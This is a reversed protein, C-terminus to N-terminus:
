SAGGKMAWRVLSELVETRAQLTDIKHDVGRRAEEPGDRFATAICTVSQAWEMWAKLEARHTADDAKFQDLQRRLSGLKTAVRGRWTSPELIQPLDDQDGCVWAAWWNWSGIEEKAKVITDPIACEDDDRGLAANLSKMAEDVRDIVDEINGTKPAGIAECLRDRHTWEAAYARTLLAEGMKKTTSRKVVSDPWGLVKAMAADATLVLERLEEIRREAAGISVGREDIIERAMRAGQSPTRAHVGAKALTELCLRAEEAVAQAAGVLGREDAGIAKAVKAITDRVEALEGELKANVKDIYREAEAMTERVADIAQPLPLKEMRDQEALKAMAHEAEAKFKELEVVKAELEDRAKLKASVAAKVSAISPSVWLMEALERVLGGIARESEDREDILNRVAGVIPTRRGEVTSGPANALLRRIRRLNMAKQVEDSILDRKGQSTAAHHIASAWCEWKDLEALRKEVIDLSANTARADDLQRKRDDALAKQVDADEALDGCKPSILSALEMLCAHCAYWSHGVNVGLRYAVNVTAEM